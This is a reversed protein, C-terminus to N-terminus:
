DTLEQIARTFEGILQNPIPITLHYQSIKWGAPTNILVGTGRAVGFSESDLIEDFWASNGDPTLNVNRAGPHYIWGRRNGAYARFEAKTWREGADTGIFVGDDSMLEFYSDWNGVAAAAHFADLVEAVGTFESQSSEAGQASGSLLITLGLVRWDNHRGLIKRIM